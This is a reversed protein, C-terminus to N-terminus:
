SKSEQVDRFEDQRNNEKHGNQKNLLHEMEDKQISDKIVNNAVVQPSEQKGNHLVKMQQNKKDDNVVEEDDDYIKLDKVSYWVGVDFLTGVTVFAAATLNM